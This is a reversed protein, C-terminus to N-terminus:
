SVTPKILDIIIDISSKNIPKEFIAKVQSYKKAKVKESDITSSSVVIIKLASFAPSKEIEKLFTWGDMVPMNLDLLILFNATEKFRIYNLVEKGNNFTREVSVNNKELLKGHIFQIIKDDDVILVRYINPM